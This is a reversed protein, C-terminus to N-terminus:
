SIKHFRSQKPLQSLTCLKFSFPFNTSPFSPVALFKYKGQVEKREGTVRPYHLPNYKRAFVKVAKQFAVTLKCLSSGTHELSFATHQSQARM